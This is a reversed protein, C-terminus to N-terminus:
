TGWLHSTWEETAERGVVARLFGVSWAQAQNALLRHPPEEHLTLVKLVHAEMNDLQEAAFPQFGVEAENAPASWMNGGKTLPPSIAARDCEPHERTNSTHEHLGIPVPHDTARGPLEDRDEDNESGSLGQSEADELDSGFTAEPTRGTIADDDLEMHLGMQMGFYLMQDADRFDKLLRMPTRGESGYALNAGERGSSPGGNRGTSGSLQSVHLPREALLQHMIVPLDGGGLSGSRTLSADVALALRLYLSPHSTLTDTLDRSSGTAERADLKANSENQEARQTLEDTKIKGFLHKLVEMALNIGSRQLKFPSLAESLVTLGPRDHATRYDMTGSVVSDTGQHRSSSLKEDLLHLVLPLVVCAMSSTPLWLFLHRQLLGGICEQIGSVCDRIDRENDYITATDKTAATSPQNSQILVFALQPAELHCLAVRTSYYYMYMLNSHVIISEHRFSPEGHGSGVMDNSKGFVPCVLITEKFWKELAKRANSVARLEHARTRHRWSSTGDVPHVLLLVDTMIVCLDVFREFMHLLTRKVSPDYVKSRYVEHALDVARLPVHASFDFHTRPIQISSRTSLAVIRDRIMCCWWLRKLANQPTEETSVLASTDMALAYRHAEATRAHQIAISVWSLSAELVSTESGPSWLSLLLAAQAINIPSAETGFDYLLKARRYLAAKATSLSSFGLARICNRSVFNSAAFIMSQLVLLSVPEMAPSTSEGKHYLDCFEGEHILPLFPHVHRFYQHIFEDLLTKIPVRFCGQSELYNVDQPVVQCLHNIRLFPYYSYLIDYSSLMPHHLQPFRSAHSKNMLIGRAGPGDVTAQSNKYNSAHSLSGPSMTPTGTSTRGQSATSVDRDSCAACDGTGHRGDHPQTVNDVTQFIQETAEERSGDPNKRTRPARGTVVCAENDLYCNMCPRGRKTRNPITADPPM